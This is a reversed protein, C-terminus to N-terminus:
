AAQQKILKEAARIAEVASEIDGSEITTRLDTLWNLQGLLEDTTEVQYGTKKIFAQMSKLVAKKHNSICLAAQERLSAVPEDSADGIGCYLDDWTLNMTVVDNVGDQLVAVSIDNGCHGFWVEVSLRLDIGVANCRHKEVRGKEM